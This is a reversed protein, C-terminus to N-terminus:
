DDVVVQPDFGQARLPEALVDADGVVVLTLAGLPLLRQVADTAQDPSIRLLEATHRNVFSQDLGVEVLASAQDVIGAATACRLPAVGVLYNVADTLEPRTIGRDGDTVLLDTAESIAAAAVETRFSAHLSLLGGHRAPVNTLQVGYTYGREERLVRNLRSLFGGGLVFTGLRLAPWDPHSRDVGFSGLRVDAQVAGSRHVLLCRPPAALPSEHQVAGSGTSRWGAFARDVRGLLDAPLDGALVLTSADPRYQDAHATRVAEGSIAAVTDAEGAASRSARFAGDIVAARFEQGGRHAPHARHQAIEALRLEVQRRVDDDSLQPERVVEALLPLAADLRTVPVEISLHAASQSTGGHLVAGCGEVADAFDTGPHSRTGEDLVRLIMSSVGELARPESVLPQDVVLTANLLHQGPRHFALLRLGNDLTRREPEPFQWVRPAGVVPRSM